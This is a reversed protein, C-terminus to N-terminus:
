RYFRDCAMIKHLFNDLIGVLVLEPKPIGYKYGSM